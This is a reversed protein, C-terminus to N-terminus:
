SVCCKNGRRSLVKTVNTVSVIETIKAHSYLDTKTLAFDIYLYLPTGKIVLNFAHM